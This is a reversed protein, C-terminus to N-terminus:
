FRNRFTLSSFEIKGTNTPSFSMLFSPILRINTSLIKPYKPLLGFNINSKRIWESRWEPIFEQFVKRKVCILTFSMCAHTHANKKKLFLFGIEILARIGSIRRDAYAWMIRLVCVHVNVRWVGSCWKFVCLFWACVNRGGGNARIIFNIVM